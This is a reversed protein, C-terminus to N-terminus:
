PAVVRKGTARGNFIDQFAVPITEIAKSIHTAFRIEHTALLPAVTRRMEPLHQEYDSNRYSRITVDMGILRELHRIGYRQDAALHYQSIMGAAPVRAGENLNVIAADLMEGGVLEFYIDIGDPCAAKLQETLTGPRAHNIAADLRFNKRLAQVNEDSGATGVVRLGLHGALQAALSGVAGQTAPM